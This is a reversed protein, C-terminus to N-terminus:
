MRSARLYVPWRLVHPTDPEGCVTEMAPALAAVPDKGTAEVYAHVGSWTRVYALIESATWRASIVFPPAQLPSGPLEIAEYRDDVLRAGAAFYRGVVDRYFPWLVADFPSEVHAAHYTWAALVGGPRLVRRAEDYFRPLDFWHLAAAAVVLDVSHAPLPATEARSVCYAVRPVRKAHVVQAASVDSAIVREFHEALGVAAQGSGTATDWALGRAPVVSGLWAFLEAPYGPRAVAYSGAVPSFDPVDSM